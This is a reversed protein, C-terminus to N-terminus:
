ALADVVSGASDGQAERGDARYAQVSERLAQFAARIEAREEHSVQGDARAASGLDRIGQIQAELQTAFEADMRGESVAQDLRQAVGRLLEGRKPAEMTHAHHHIAHMEM